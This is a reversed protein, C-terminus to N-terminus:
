AAPESVMDEGAPHRRVAWWLLALALITGAFGLISAVLFLTEYSGDPGVIRSGIALAVIGVGAGAVLALLSALREGPPLLVGVGATAVGALGILSMAITMEIPMARDDDRHPRRSLASRPTTVRGDVLRLM